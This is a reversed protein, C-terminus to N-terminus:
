FGGPIPKRVVVLGRGDSEVVWASVERYYRAMEQEVKDNLEVARANAREREVNLQHIKKLERAYFIKGLVYSGAVLTVGAILLENSPYAHDETFAIKGIVGLSLPVVAFTEMLSHYRDKTGDAASDPVPPLTRLLEPLGVM